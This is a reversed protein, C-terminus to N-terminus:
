PLEARFLRQRDRRGEGMSIDHRPEFTSSSGVALVFSLMSSIAFQLM